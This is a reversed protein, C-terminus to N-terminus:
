PRHNGRLRPVRGHPHVVTGNGASRQGGVPSDTGEGPRVELYDDVVAMQGDLMFHAYGPDRELDPLLQDLLDVLKLRFTQADAYWERDWHTHPVIWVTRPRPPSQSEM